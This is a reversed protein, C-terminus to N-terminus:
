PDVRVLRQPIYQEVRDVFEAPVGTAVLPQFMLKTESSARFGFPNEDKTQYWKKPEPKQEGSVECRLAQEQEDLAKLVSAEEKLDDLLPELEKNLQDVEQQYLNRIEPSRTDDRLRLKEERQRKLETIERSLGNRSKVRRSRQREIDQYEPMAHLASSIQKSRLKKLEGLVRQQSNREEEIARLEHRNVVREGVKKENAVLAADLDAVTKNQKAIQADIGKIAANAAM